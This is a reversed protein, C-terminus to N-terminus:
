DKVLKGNAIIQKEDSIRFFYLGKSLASVPIDFQNNDSSQTRVLRASLDFIELTLSKTAQINNVYIHAIDSVPNPFVKLEVNPVFIEVSNVTIFNKGITHFIENALTGNETDDLDTYFVPRHKLQTGIALDKDQSITYKVFLSDENNLSLKNDFIFNLIHKDRIILRYPHSSVGLRLSSIDLGIPLTDVIYLRNITDISWNKYRILYEIDQNQNIYNQNSYGKPFGLIDNYSPNEEVERIDIDINPEADDQPYQNAYGVIYNGGGKVCGEITVSPSSKRPYNASQAVEFRYMNGKAEISKVTISDKPNLSKVPINGFKGAILDEIIIGDKNSSANSGNNLVAFRISDGICSAYVKLESRDWQSSPTECLPNPLIEVKHINAKKLPLNTKNKIEIKVEGDELPEIDGLSLIIRKAEIFSAVSADLFAQNNDLYLLAKASKAIETGINKYKLTYFTSNDNNKACLTTLDTEIQICVKNVQIPINIEKIQNAQVSFTPIVCPKWLSNTTKVELEYNDGVPISSEIQGKSNPRLIQIVQGAQKLFVTAEDFTFDKESNDIVCDNNKDWNLNVNLLGHNIISDSKYTITFECQDGKIGDVQLWYTKEAIASLYFTRETKEEISICPLNDNSVIDSCSPTRQKFIKATVGKDNGANSCDGVNITVNTINNKPIFKYWLPNEELGNGKCTEYVKQPVKTPDPTKGVIVGSPNFNIATCPTNNQANLGFYTLLFFLKLYIVRM